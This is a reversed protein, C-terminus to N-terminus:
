VDLGLWREDLQALLTSAVDYRIFPRKDPWAGKPRIQVDRLWEVYQLRYWGTKFRTFNTAIIVRDVNTTNTIEKLLRRDKWVVSLLGIGNYLSYLTVASILIKFGITLYHAYRDIVYIILLGIVGIIVM